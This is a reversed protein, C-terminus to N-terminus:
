PLWHYSVFALQRGDPSWSPVNITGPGALLTAIVDLKDDAGLSLVRLMAERDESSAAAGREFSLFALRGGDPSLHPFVNDFGDSTVEEQESGDPRMRWIQSTGTRASSFYIRRGAPSYEPGDDLGKATTLRAEEGGTVPITYVDSEGDREGTFALASGDPSWGHWYSPSHATVRRPTGGGIPAVYIVSRHDEQSEDSFALLTGDPSPGHASNCRTAFGTDITEPPGGALPLRHIRGGANFLLASGDRTWNPAEVRGPAVYVVRRDTSTVTVTELTSYLAPERAPPKLRTLEVDSFRATEVVGKEHSCVGIGVYFPEEFRLRMSGATLSFDEGESALWMTVHRGRKEIRVRKPASVSSQIEHTAAGKGDRFQLSTLGDGHLAVDAYASDADLSQRVMLVAKRHRNGGTGSFSIAATLAADSSVKKWVFHFADAAFWMNEGSGSVVYSRDSPDYQASGAQLVMGVDQHGDFAGIPAPVLTEADLRGSAAELFYSGCALALLLPIRRHNV